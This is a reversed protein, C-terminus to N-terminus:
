FDDTSQEVDILFAHLRAIEANIKLFTKPLMTGM